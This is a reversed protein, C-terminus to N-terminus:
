PVEVRHGPYVIVTTVDDARKTTAARVIVGVPQDRVATHVVQGDRPRPESTKVYVTM